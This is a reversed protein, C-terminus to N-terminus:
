LKKLNITANPVKWAHLPANTSILVRDLKFLATLDGADREMSGTM